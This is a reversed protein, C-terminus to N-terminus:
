TILCIRICVPSLGNWHLIQARANELDSWKVVCMRVCVPPLSSRSSFYIKVSNLHKSFGNRHSVHPRRNARDSSRLRWPFTWWFSRFVLKIWCESGFPDWCSFLRDTKDFLRKFLMSPSPSSREEWGLIVSEDSLRWCNWKGVWQQQLHYKM